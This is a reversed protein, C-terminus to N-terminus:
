GNPNQQRIDRRDDTSCRQRERLPQFEPDAPRNDTDTVTALYSRRACLAEISKSRYLLM